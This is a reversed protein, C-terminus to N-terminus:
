RQQLSDTINKGVFIGSSGYIHKYYRKESNQSTESLTEGGFQEIYKKIAVDSMDIQYKSELHNLFINEVEYTFIEASDSSHSADAISRALTQEQGISGSEDLGIKDNVRNFWVLGTIIAAVIITAVSAVFKSNMM